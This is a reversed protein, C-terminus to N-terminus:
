WLRVVPSMTTKLYVSFIKNEPIQREVADLVAMINETLDETGMDETGVPTSITPNKKSKIRVTNKLREIVPALDVNPPVPQPMKNRPGLIIGWTKGIQAMMDPQAIFTYCSNAFKRMRRKNKAYDETEAKNLVYKSLKKARVNMDGDAFIGINIDKGRGKPLVVNLNLKNEPSEMDIDKFNMVMEVSQKFKRKETKGIAEEIKKVIEKKDM